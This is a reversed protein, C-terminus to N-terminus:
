FTSLIQTIQFITKSFFFKQPAPTHWFIFETLSPSTQLFVLSNELSALHWAPNSGLPACLSAVPKGLLIPCENIICYIVNFIRVRGLPTTFPFEGLHPFHGSRFSFPTTSVQDFPRGLRHTSCPLGQVASSLTKLLQILLCTM